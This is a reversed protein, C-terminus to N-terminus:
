PDQRDLADKRDARDVPSRLADRVQAMEQRLAWVEERLARVDRRTAAEDASDAARVREVIASALTGTVVGLLAIGALMLAAAVVRGETTVPAYDGYGVTTVTVLAWWLADPLTQISSEPHGREADLVALGGVFVALCTALVVYAGVHGYLNRGLRRDVVRLLLLMRLLRLPRFLPLVVIVLDLPHTLVFRWWRESLAARVVYDLAFSAWATWEVVHCVRRWDDGLDPELVPWAFAALFALALVVLPVEVAREWRHRGRDADTFRRRWGSPSRTARSPSGTGTPTLDAM